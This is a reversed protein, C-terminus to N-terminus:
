NQAAQQDSDSALKQEYLAEFNIPQLLFPPFGGKGTLDTVTERLYPFIIEPCNVQLARQLDDDGLGKVTFLGAQQIEVLFLTSKDNNEARVSAMIVVEHVGEHGEVPNTDISIQINISPESSALFIAPTSPAEYSADKLYVKDFSFLVQEETM